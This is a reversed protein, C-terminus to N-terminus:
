VDPNRGIVVVVDPEDGGLELFVEALCVIRVGDVKPNHPDRTMKRRGVFRKGEELWGNITAGFLWSVTDRAALFKESDLSYVQIM